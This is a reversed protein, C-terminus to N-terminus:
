GEQQAQPSGRPPRFSSGGAKNTEVLWRQFAARQAAVIAAQPTPPPPTAPLGAVIARLEQELWGHLVVNTCSTVGHVRVEGTNPHFLTLVKATGNRFYEHPQKAPQGQPQWSSGRQPVTQFPGAEDECGIDLGLQQGLTYADQIL